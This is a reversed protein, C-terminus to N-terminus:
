GGSPEVEEAQDSADLEQQDPDLAQELGYALSLCDELQSRVLELDSFLDDLERSTRSLDRLGFKFKSCLSLRRRCSSVMDDIMEPVDEHDMTYTVKVKM